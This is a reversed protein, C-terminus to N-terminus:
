PRRKRRTPLIESSEDDPLAQARSLLDAAQAEYLPTGASKFIDAAQEAYATAEAPDDKALTLESMGLLVRGEILRDGLSRAIAM